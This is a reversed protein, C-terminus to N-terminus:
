SKGMKFHIGRRTDKGSSGWEERFSTAWVEGAVERSGQIEGTPFSRM